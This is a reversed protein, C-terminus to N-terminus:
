KRRRLAVAGLGMGLMAISTPEPVPPLTFSYANPANPDSTVKLVGTFVSPITATNSVTLRAISQIGALPNDTAHVDGWAVDITRQNNNTEPMTASTGQVGTGNGLISSQGPDVFGPKSLFTDNNLYAFASAFQSLGTDANFNAPTYFNGNALTGIISAGAWHDGPSISVQLDYSKYNALTPDSALAAASIPVPALGVFAVSAHAASSILTAGVAAALMKTTRSM